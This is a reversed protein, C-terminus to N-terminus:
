LRKLNLPIRDAILHAVQMAHYGAYGWLLIKLHVPAHIDLAAVRRWVDPLFQKLLVSMLLATLGLMVGLYVARILPGRVFTHSVGRHRSVRILPQWLWGFPGWAKLPATRVGPMDLDPTIWVSGILGGALLAMGPGSLVPVHLVTLAAGTLALAGLNIALHTTGDPM